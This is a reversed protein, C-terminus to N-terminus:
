TLTAIDVMVKKKKLTQKRAKQWILDFYDQALDVATKNNSWLTPHPFPSDIASTSLLMEKRDWVSFGTNPSVSILRLDLNPYKMLAELPEGMRENLEPKPMIIRFDVKRSLAEELIHSYNSVWAILRRKLAMFCIITQVDRIMKEAKAYVAHRSPILMFQFEEPLEENESIRKFNQTLALTRQQLEATKMIRRQILDSVCKEISVAHFEEPKTMAKEVLGAEELQVLVRYVDPDTM